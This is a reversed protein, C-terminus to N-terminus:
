PAIQQGIVDTLATVDSGDAQKLDQQVLPTAWNVDTNKRVLRQYPTTATDVKEDGELIDKITDVIADVTAILAPITTGTDELISDVITDLTTVVATSITDVKGDTTALSSALALDVLSHTDKAFATGKIDVLDVLIEDQKAETADGLAGPALALAAATYRSVGANNEVLENFLATAVGPKSGPDYDVAFLHDLHYTEIAADVQANIAAADPVADLQESIVKLTDNDTGRLAVFKLSDVDKTFGTGKIDVLDVLIEDQKAETATGAGTPGNELANSSFQYTGADDVLLDLFISGATGEGAYATGLLHDLHVNSLALACQTTVNADTPLGDMQDSLSELTDGDAGVRALASTTADAQAVPYATSEDYKSATIADDALGMEAGAAIDNLTAMKKTETTITISVPVATAATFLFGVEDYNVDAQSPAFEYQGSGQETFFGTIAGQAAGDGSKVGNPSAGTLATGDSAKVLVFYIFQGAGNKLIM